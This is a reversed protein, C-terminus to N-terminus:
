FHRRERYYRRVTAPQTTNHNYWIHMTALCSKTQGKEPRYISSCTEHHFFSDAFTISATPNSKVLSGLARAVAGYTWALILALNPPVHPRAHESAARTLLPIHTSRSNIHVHHGAPIIHSRGIRLHTEPSPMYGHQRHAMATPLTTRTRPEHQDGRKTCINNIM